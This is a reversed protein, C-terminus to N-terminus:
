IFFLRGNLADSPMESQLPRGVLTALKAAYLCPAPVSVVGTHNFYLFCFQYALSQLEDSALKLEDHM